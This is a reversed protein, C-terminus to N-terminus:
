HGVTAAKPPPSKAVAVAAVPKQAKAIAIALKKQSRTNEFHTWIQQSQSVYDSFSIQGSQDTLPAQPPQVARPPQM